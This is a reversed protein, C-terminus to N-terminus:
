NIRIYNEEELHEFYRSYNPYVEDNYSPRSYWLILYERGKSVRLRDEKTPNSGLVLYKGIEIEPLSNVVFYKEDQIVIFNDLNLSFFEWGSNKQGVTILVNFKKPIEVHFEPFIEVPLKFSLNSSVSFKYDTDEWSYHPDGRSHESGAADGVYFSDKTIEKIETLKKFLNFMGPNPKRFIDKKTAFFVFCEFGLRKFFEEMRLKAIDIMYKQGKPTGRNSFIVITFGSRKLSILKDKVTDTEFIFSVDDEIFREGKNSHILTHDLDFSALSIIKDKLPKEERPVRIWVSDEILYWNM